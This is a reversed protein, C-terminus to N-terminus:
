KEKLLIDRVAMTIRGQHNLGSKDPLTGWFQDKYSLEYLNCGETSLLVQKVVENQRFKQLIANCMVNIKVEDTWDARLKNLPDRGEKAAMFANSQSRIHEQLSHNEFKMAQYYHEVSQWDRGAYFFSSVFFNQLCGYPANTKQYFIDTM